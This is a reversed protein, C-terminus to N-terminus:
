EALVPAAHEERGRLEKEPMLFLAVLTLVLTIGAAVFIM